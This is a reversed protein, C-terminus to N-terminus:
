LVLGLQIPGAWNAWKELGALMFTWCISMRLGSDAVLAWRRRGMGGACLGHQALGLERRLRRLGAEGGAYGVERVLGSAEKSGSRAWCRRAEVELEVCAHRLRGVRGGELRAEQRCSSNKQQEIQNIEINM